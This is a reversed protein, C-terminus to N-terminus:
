LSNIKEIIEEPSLVYDVVGKKISAHPMSHIISSEENQAITIGGVKKIAAMGSAGDSGMGSLIVGVCKEGFVRAASTMTRDISPTIGRLGTVQRTPIYTKGVYWNKIHGYIVNILNYYPDSTLIEKPITSLNTYRVEMNSGGPITIGTRPFLITYERSLSVAIPSIRNLRKALSASFMAPMHQALIIIHQFDEKLHSFIIPLVNPGGTSAGIVIMRPIDSPDIDAWNIETKEKRKPYRTQIKDVDVRSAAKIKSIILDKFRDLDTNRDPGPKEIFDVAGSELAKIAMDSGRQTVGSIVVIPTPSQRMIEKIAGIGDTGPMQLDMTIVDPELNIAMEIAEDGNRAMGIVDFNGREGLVEHIISRMLISDDAILVRIAAM